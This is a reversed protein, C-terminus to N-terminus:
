WGVWGDVRERGEKNRRTHEVEPIRFKGAEQLVRKSPVTPGDHDGVDPSKTPTM